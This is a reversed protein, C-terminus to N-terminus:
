RNPRKMCPASIRKTVGAIECRGHQAVQTASFRAPFFTKARSLGSWFPPALGDVSAACV